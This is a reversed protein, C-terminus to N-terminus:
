HCLPRLTGTSIDCLLTDSCVPLAVRAFKITTDLLHSDQLDTESPQAKAMVTFVITPTIANMQASDEGLSSLADAVPNGKGAIHCIDSTFQSIFDLQWVQHPSHHHLM